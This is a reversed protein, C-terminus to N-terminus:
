APWFGIQNGKYIGVLMWFVMACANGLILGIMFPRVRVVADNGGYKLLATKIAWAVFFSFWLRVLPYGCAVIYGLPHLSFWLFRSRAWSLLLVFGAGVIMWFVNWPQVTPQSNITSAAGTFISTPGASAFWSYSALGGVKYLTM